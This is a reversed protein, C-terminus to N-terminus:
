STNEKNTESFERVDKLNEASLMISEEDKDTLYIVNLEHNGTCYIYDTRPMRVARGRSFSTQRNSDHRTLRCTNLFQNPAHRGCRACNKYTQRWM